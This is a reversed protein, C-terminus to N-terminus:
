TDMEEEVDSDNDDGHDGVDSDPEAVHEDINLFNEPTM